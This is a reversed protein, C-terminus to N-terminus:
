RQEDAVQLVGSVIRRRRRGKRMWPVPHKASLGSLPMPSGYGNKRNLYLVVDGDRARSWFDAVDADESGSLDGLFYVHEFAGFLM